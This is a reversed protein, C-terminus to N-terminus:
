DNDKGEELNVKIGSKFAHLILANVMATRSLGVDSRRILENLANNAKTTIFIMKKVEGNRKKDM